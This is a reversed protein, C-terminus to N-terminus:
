TKMSKALKKSVILASNTDHKTAFLPTGGLTASYMRRVYPYEFMVTRVAAPVAVSTTLLHNLCPPRNEVVAAFSHRISSFMGIRFFYAPASAPGHSPLMASM